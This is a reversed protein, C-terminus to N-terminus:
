ETPTEERGEQKDLGANMFHLRNTWTLYFRSEDCNKDSMCQKKGNLMKLCKKVSNIVFRISTQQSFKLYHLFTSFKLFCFAGKGLEKEGYVAETLLQYGDRWVKTYAYM